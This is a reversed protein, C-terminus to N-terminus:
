QKEISTSDTVATVLYVTEEPVVSGNLMGYIIKFNLSLKLM